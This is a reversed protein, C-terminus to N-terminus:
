KPPPSCGLQQPHRPAVAVGGSNPPVNTMGTVLSPSGNANLMRPSLPVSWRTHPATGRLPTKLAGPGLGPRPCARARVETPSM